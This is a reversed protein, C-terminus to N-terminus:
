WSTNADFFQFKAIAPEDAFILYSLPKWNYAAFALGISGIIPSRIRQFWAETSDKIFDFLFYNGIASTTAEILKLVFSRELNAIFVGGPMAPCRGIRPKARKRRFQDVPDIGLRSLGEGLPNRKAGVGLDLREGIDHIGVGFVQPNV